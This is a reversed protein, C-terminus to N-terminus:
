GRPADVLEFGGSACLAAAVDAIVREHEAAALVHVFGWHDGLLELEGGAYRLPIVVDGTIAAWEPVAGLHRSPRAGLRTALAEIMKEIVPVVDDVVQVEIM